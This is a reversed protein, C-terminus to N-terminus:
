ATSAKSKSESKVEITRPSASANFPAVIELIGNNYEASIKATDVDDPLVVTRKFREFSFERQLYSADKKEKAASHEGSITLRDGHLSLQIEEPKVGPLAVRLRYERKEDDIFAEIPPAVISLEDQRSTGGGNNRLLRNFLSDFDQRFDFLDEFVNDRRALVTM